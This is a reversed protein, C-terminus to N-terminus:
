KNINCRFLKNDNACEWYQVGDIEDTMNMPENCHPCTGKRIIKDAEQPSIIDCNYDIIGCRPCSTKPNNKWDVAVKGCGKCVYNQTELEKPM